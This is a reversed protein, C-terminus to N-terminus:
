CAAQAVVRLHAAPSQYTANVFRFPSALIFLTFNLQTTANTESTTRPNFTWSVGCFDNILIVDDRVDDGLVDQDARRVVHDHQHICGTRHAGAMALELFGVVLQFFLGKGAPFM